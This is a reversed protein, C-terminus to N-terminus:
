RIYVTMQDKREKQMPLSGQQNFRKKKPNKSVELYNEKSNKLSVSKEIMKQKKFQIM